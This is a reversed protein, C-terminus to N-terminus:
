DFLPTFIFNLAHFLSSQEFLYTKAFMFLFMLFGWGVLFGERLIFCIPIQLCFLWCCFWCVFINFFGFVVWLCYFQRLENSGQGEPLVSMKKRCSNNSSTFSPNCIRKRIQDPSKMQCRNYSSCKQSTVYIIIVHVKELFNMEIKRQLM